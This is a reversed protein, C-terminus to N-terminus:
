EDDDDDRSAALLSEISLDGDGADRADEKEDDDDGGTTIEVQSFISNWTTDLENLFSEQSEGVFLSASAGSGTADSNGKAAGPRAAEGQPTKAAGKATGETKGQEQGSKEPAEVDAAVGEESRARPCLEELRRRVESLYGVYLAANLNTRRPVEELVEPEPIEAVLLLLTKGVKDFPLLKHEHLFGPPFIEILKPNADYNELSLFPLQYQTSLTKTIDSESILGMDMLIQGLIDGSLEQQHLAEELQDLTILGESVLIEGIRRRHVRSLSSTM